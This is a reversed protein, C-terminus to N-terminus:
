HSCCMVMLTEVSEINCPVVMPNSKTKYKALICISKKSYQSNYEKCVDIGTFEGDFIYLDSNTLICNNSLMDLVGHYTVEQDTEQICAGESCGNPCQYKVSFIDTMASCYGPKVPEQEEFYYELLTKKDLCVDAKCIEGLCTKSAKFYNIGGDKESCPILKQQVDENLNSEVEKKGFFDRIANGTTSLWGASVISIALVSIILIASFIALNKKM